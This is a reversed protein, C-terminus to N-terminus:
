PERSSRISRAYTGQLRHLGHFLILLVIRMFDLHHYLIRLQAFDDRPRLSFMGHVEFFALLM